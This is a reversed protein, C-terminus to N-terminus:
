HVVGCVMCCKRFALPWSSKRERQLFDISQLETRDSDKIFGGLDTWWQLLRSFCKDNATCVQALHFNPKRNTATLSRPAASANNHPMARRSHFSSVKAYDIIFRMLSYFRSASPEVSAEREKSSL